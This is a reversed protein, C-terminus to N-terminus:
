SQQKQEQNAKWLRYQHDTGMIWDWFVLMGYNGERHSHHYDHGEAALFVPIIRTPSWPFSYGSHADVTELIRLFMWLFWTFMHPGLLMGGLITPMFNAFVQEVPHAYESAIGVSTVFRHHQAHILQFLKPHHLTRHVWYFGTDCIVLNLVLHIFIESFTPFPGDTHIGFFKFAPYLFYLTPVQIIIHNIVLAKICDKMLRDPPYKGKQIKYQEFLNFRHFIYLLVNFGVFATEHAVATGIAFFWREGFPWSTVVRHWLLDM